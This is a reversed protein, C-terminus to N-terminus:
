GMWGQGGTPAGFNRRREAAEHTRLRTARAEDDALTSQAGGFNLEHYECCNMGHEYWGDKKPKRMQKSGVSVWHEDWVYGAEFADAVFPWPEAGDKSVRLWRLYQAEVDKTADVILAEGFPTRRRMHGALREVMAVRVDPANANERYTIQHGDPYARKLVQLANDRTGHAHDHTGAPDCCTQLQLVQGFWRARYQAALPLFDELWLNQGLVGGLIRMGGGIPMQAFVVCPHHKGFDYAELLPLKGDFVIPAEHRAREFTGKYCPEGIVNLGRMGWVMPRHKAHGPPFAAVVGEVTGPALNHANDYISVRIYRKGADPNSEPFESALWHNPSTPNPSFIAQHPFGPQSLRGCLELFLDYPLEETQDNYICAVTLGRLKSYRLTQDAAKLGFLYARSGNPLEDYQEDPNWKCPTGAVYCIERWPPKLKSDTDGDTYRCIYAFMGPHDILKGHVKWLCATTKGSRIAGEIDLLRTEDRMFGVIPGRWVM